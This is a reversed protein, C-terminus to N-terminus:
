TISKRKTLFNLGRLAPYRFQHIWYKELQLRFKLARQTLPLVTCQQIGFCQHQFGRFDKQSRTKLLTPRRCWNTQQTQCQLFACLFETITNKTQGVYQKLCLKCTICYILDSSKCTIYKCPLRRGNVTSTFEKAKILLSCIWCQRNTCTKKFNVNPTNSALSFQIEQTQQHVKRLRFM